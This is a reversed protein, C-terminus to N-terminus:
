NSAAELAPRAPGEQLKNRLYNQLPREIFHYSMLSAAILISFFLCFSIPTYFFTRSRGTLDTILVAALQLPFHLLYSSYSIDGLFSLRKGPYGRKTELVAITIITIPFLVLSCFVLGTLHHYLRNFQLIAALIVSSWLVLCIIFLPKWVTNIGDKNIWHNYLGHTLGGIFFCLLGRGTSNLPLLFALMAGGAALILSAPLIPLGKSGLRCLMFFVCYLFIERSVSWIPGNFSFGTQLGWDSILFLNLIFHKFDNCLYIFYHGNNAMMVMQMLLVAILTIFHLPYLRSFRLIAFRTATIAGTRVKEAYLWFFIFGSLCFFLDM